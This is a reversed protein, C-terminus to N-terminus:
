LLPTVGATLVGTLVGPGQCLAGGGGVVAREPDCGLGQKANGNRCSRM